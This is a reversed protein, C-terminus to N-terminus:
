FYYKWQESYNDRMEDFPNAAWKHDVQEGYIKDLKLEKSLLAPRMQM